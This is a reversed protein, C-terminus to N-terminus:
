EYRAEENVKSLRYKILVLDEFKKVTDVTLPQHYHEMYFLDLAPGNYDEMLYVNDHVIDHVPNHVGRKAFEKKM